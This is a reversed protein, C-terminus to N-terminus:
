DLEANKIRNIIKQQGTKANDREAMYESKSENKSANDREAMYESKSENKSACSFMNSAIESKQPTDESPPRTRSRQEALMALLRSCCPRRLHSM